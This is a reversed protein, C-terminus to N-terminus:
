DQVPTYPCLGREVLLSDETCCSLRIGAAEVNEQIFPWIDQIGPMNRIPAATMHTKVAGADQARKYDDLLYPKTKLADDYFSEPTKLDVGLLKIHDGLRLLTILNLLCSLSGRYFFMPADMSLAWLKPDHWSHWRRFWTVHEPLMGANPRFGHDRRMRWRWPLNTIAGPTAYRRRYDDDLLFHVTQGSDRAIAVSEEYVCPAPYHIDALFFHTPWIGIIDWFILYKNMAVSTQGAIHTKEEPTLRLMSAGSGLVYVTRAAAPRDAAPDPM